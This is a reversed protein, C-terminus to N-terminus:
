RGQGAVMASLMELFSDPSSAGGCIKGQLQGNPRFVMLSPFGPLAYQKMLAGAYPRDGDLRVSVFSRALVAQVQPAPLIDRDLDKCVHCWSTEIVVFVWKNQQRGAQLGQHFDSFWTVHAPAAARTPAKKATKATAPNLLAFAILDAFIVAVLFSSVIRSFKAPEKLM